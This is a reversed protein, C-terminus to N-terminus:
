PVRAVLNVKRHCREVSAELDAPDHRQGYLVISEELCSVAFLLGDQGPM